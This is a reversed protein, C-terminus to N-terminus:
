PRRTSPQPKPYRLDEASRRASPAPSFTSPSRRPKTASLSALSSVSSRIGAEVLTAAELDGSLRLIAAEAQLRVLERARVRVTEATLSADDLSRDLQPGLAEVVAAAVVRVAM